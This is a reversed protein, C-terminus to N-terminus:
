ILWATMAFLELSFGKAKTFSVLDSMVQLSQGKRRVEGFAPVWEEHVKECDWLTHFEDEAMCGCQDCTSNDVVRRKQLNVKTSLARSCARWLFVKEKNPVKLQWIYKWFRKIVESDSSSPLSNMESESLLQYGTKVPYSGLKCRPWSLYDEQDTVCLPISKIRQAEFPLFIDDVLQENWGGGGPELLNAVSWNSVEEIRPSVVCASAGRPLWRDNYISIKTGNGVQWLLGSQILKSAKIISRWAYSGM